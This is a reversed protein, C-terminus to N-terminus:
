KIMMSKLNTIGINVDTGIGGLMEKVYGNAKILIFLAGILIFKSFMKNSSINLSFILLLIISVFVQVLMLSLFSKIWSNFLISTNKNCLSLIAFPSILVFVKVLVYRVAYNIVLNLLSISILSKIIGDLSFIDINENISIVSNLKIIINSFCIETNFLYEGVQRISSSIISIIYIIEDCIFLSFNICISYITLKLLFQIPREVQTVGLYSLILKFGYYILYGFILSNAILLIGNKSSLGFIDIFYDDNLIDSNIFTLDDLVSYLSNDISSFIKYFMENITNSIVSSIQSSDL